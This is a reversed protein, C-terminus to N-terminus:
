RIFLWKVNIPFVELYEDFNSGKEQMTFLQNVSKMITDLEKSGTPRETDPASEHDFTGDNGEEENKDNNTELNVIYNTNGGAYRSGSCASVSAM